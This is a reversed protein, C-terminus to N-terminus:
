WLSFFEMQGTDGDWHMVRGHYALPLNLILRITEQVQLSAILSVTSAVVPPPEVNGLAQNLYRAEFVPEDDPLITTVQGDRGLVAGHMVPKGAPRAARLLQRRSAFTDLADLALDVHQLYVALNDPHLYEELPQMELAPNIRRLFNATVTAKPQDLSDRTALLQRNINTAAFRDGDALLLRGVGVRALLLAQYEGLGGLGAILITSQFLRLQEQSSFTPFNRELSEPFIGNALTQQYAERFSLGHQQAWDELKEEALIMYNQRQRSGPRAM